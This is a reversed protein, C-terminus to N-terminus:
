ADEPEQIPSHRSILEFSAAEYYEGRVVNRIQDIESVNWIFKKGDTLKLWHWGTIKPHGDKWMYSSCGCM